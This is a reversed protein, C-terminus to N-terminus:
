LGGALIILTKDICSATWHVFRGLIGTKCFATHKDSAAGGTYASGHYLCKSHLRSPNGEDIHIRSRRLRQAILNFTLTASTRPKLRNIHGIYGRQLIGNLNCYRLKARQLRQDIVRGVIITM